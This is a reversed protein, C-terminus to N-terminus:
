ECLWDYLHMRTRQEEPERQELEWTRGVTTLDHMLNTDNFTSTHIPKGWPTPMDDYPLAEKSGGYISTYAWDYTVHDLESHNPIKTPFPYKRLYGCM